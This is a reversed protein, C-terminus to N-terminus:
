QFDRQSRKPMLAIGSGTKIGRFIKV